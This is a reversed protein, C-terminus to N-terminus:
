IYAGAATRALAPTAADLVNAIADQSAELEAVVQSRMERWHDEVAAADALSVEELHDHTRVVRPYGLTARDIMLLNWQRIHRDTTGFTKALHTFGAETIKRDAADEIRVILERSLEDHNAPNHAEVASDIAAQDDGSLTTGKRFHVVTNAGVVRLGVIRHPVVLALEGALSRADISSVDAVTHTVTM